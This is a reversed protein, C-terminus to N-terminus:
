NVMNTKNVQTLSNLFRGAIDTAIKRAISCEVKRYESCVLCLFIGAVIVCNTWCLPSMEYESLKRKWRMCSMVSREVMELLDNSSDTRTRWKEILWNSLVTGSLLVYIGKNIELIWKVKQYLVLSTHIEFSNIFKVIPFQKKFFFVHWMDVLKFVAFKLFIQLNYQFVRLM